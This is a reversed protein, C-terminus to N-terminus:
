LKALYVLLSKTTILGLEADMSGPDFEPHGASDVQHKGRRVYRCCSIIIDAVLDRKTANQLGLGDLFEEISGKPNHMQLIRGLVEELANECYDLVQRDQRSNFARDALEIDDLAKEWREGDISPIELEILRRSSLGYEQVINFWDTTSIEIIPTSSSGPSRFQMIVGNWREVREVRETSGSVYRELVMSWRLQLKMTVQNASRRVEDIRDILQRPADLHVEWKPADHYNRGNLIPKAFCETNSIM